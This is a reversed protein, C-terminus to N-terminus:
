LRTGTFAATGLMHRAAGSIRNEEVVATFKFSLRMPKTIKARWTLRNGEIRGDSIEVHHDADSLSGTLTNGDVRLELVGSKAGMPTTITINWRGQVM